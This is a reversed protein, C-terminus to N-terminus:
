ICVGISRLFKEKEEPNKDIEELIKKTFIGKLTDEKSIEDLNYGYHSNDEFECINKNIIKLQEEVKSTDFNKKGILEIKYFTNEQLKLKDIMESVSNIGTVDLEKKEFKTDDIKIFKYEVEGNPLIDGTVMGHEGPEDFGCSVLSGPYIIKSNDIKPM